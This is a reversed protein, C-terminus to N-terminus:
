GVSFRYVTRHRYEEGESLLVSPFGEKNPSDPFHQTELCLGGWKQYMCGEKGAITGDLFNATYVQVGPQSTWVEMCRGSGEEYVRAAFKLEEVSAKESKDAWQVFNNDYGGTKKIAEGLNREERFDLETGAVSVIEGTPILGDDVPTYREAGLKLVHSDITGSSHGGLNWYSHNTLNIVTKKDSKAWYDIVLEGDETLRYAAKVECRGPYGEEMDASVYVLEVGASDETNELVRSEWVRKDFGKIGGHLHNEGNNVALRYEVGDIVFRGKAIRNAYRGIVAGFYPSNKEVWDELKDFGLVVDKVEGKADPVEVKQVAAGYSIVEVATGKSNEMRYLKVEKGDAQGFSKETIKVM